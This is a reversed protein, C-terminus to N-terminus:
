VDKQSTLEWLVSKKMIKTEMNKVNVMAAGDDLFGKNAKGRGHSHGRVAQMRVPGKACCPVSTQYLGYCQFARNRSYNVEAGM